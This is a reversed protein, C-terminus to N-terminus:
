STPYRLELAQETQNLALVQVQKEQIGSSHLETIQSNQPTQRERHNKMFVKLLDWNQGSVSCSVLKSIEFFTAPLFFYNRAGVLLLLFEHKLESKEKTKMIKYRPTDGEIHHIACCYTKDCPLIDCFNVEPITTVPTVSPSATSDSLAVFFLLSRLLAAQRKM